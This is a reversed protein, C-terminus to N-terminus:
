EKGPHNVFAELKAHADAMVSSGHFVLLTDFDYELLNALSADAQGLDASFHDTPLVVYGPPLGRFDSGFVNDGVVLIGRDEDVLASTNPTHGPVRVTEFPGIREGDGYRHDPEHDADLDLGEPVWTEVGYAEVIADFGGVHDPDGHTIILREPEIGIEEIGALVAETSSELGSDVLTPVEGDFLYVRLRGVGGICTIDYVGEAIETPMDSSLRQPIAFVKQSEPPREAKVDM